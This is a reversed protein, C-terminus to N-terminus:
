HAPLTSSTALLRNAAQVVEDVAVAELRPDIVDGHPDAPADPIDHWIVTHLDADVAPGWESPPTPGFLVVSPTRRATALHAVGTDGSLLLSANAVTADMAALTLRGALDWVGNARSAVANTLPREAEVGTVVVRHGHSMLANAVEAWRAAPWRRSGSAAGPHLVVVDRLSEGDLVVADPVDPLLLDPRGCDGGASRILRCWRDVEHEDPLWQPGAHGADPAGFAILDRPRTAQLVRHSQPGRGHLNVAVHGGDQLGHAALAPPDLADLGSHPLVDDVVGLARLLSGIELPAALVLRERPFRRRV